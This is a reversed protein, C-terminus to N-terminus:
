QFLDKVMAALNERRETYDINLTPFNLYDVKDFFDVNDILSSNRGLSRALFALELPMTCAQRLLLSTPCFISIDHGNNLLQRGLILTTANTPYMICSHPCMKIQFYLANM